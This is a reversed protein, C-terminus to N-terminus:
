IMTVPFWFIEKTDWKPDKTESVRSCDLVVNGLYKKELGFAYLVM